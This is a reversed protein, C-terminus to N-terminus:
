WPQVFFVFPFSEDAGLRAARGGVLSDNSSFTLRPCRCHAMQFCARERSGGEKSSVVKPYWFFSLSFVKSGTISGGSTSTIGGSIRFISDHLQWTSVGHALPFQVHRFALMPQEINQWHKLVSFQLFGKVTFGFSSSSFSSPSCTLSSQHKPPVKM